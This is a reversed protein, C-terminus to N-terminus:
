LTVVKRRVRELTISGNNKKVEYIYGDELKIQRSLSCEREEILRSIALNIVKSRDSNNDMVTKDLWKLTKDDVRLGIQNTKKHALDM